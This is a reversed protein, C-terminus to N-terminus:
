WDDKSPQKTNKRISDELIVSSAIIKLRFEPLWDNFAKRCRTGEDKNFYGKLHSTRAGVAPLVYSGAREAPRYVNGDDYYQLRVKNDKISIVLRIYWNFSVTKSARFSTIYNYVLQQNTENVLVENPNVFNLGSWNKIRTIIEANSISDDLKIIRTFILYEDKSEYMSDVHYNLEEVQSFLSQSVFLFLQLIKNKM